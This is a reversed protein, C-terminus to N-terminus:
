SFMGPCSFLGLGPFLGLCSFLGHYCVKFISMFISWSMFMVMFVAFRVVVVKVVSVKMFSQNAEALVDNQFQNRRTELCPTALLFRM